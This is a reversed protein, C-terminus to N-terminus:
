RPPQKMYLEFLSWLFTFLPDAVGLVHYVGLMAEQDIRSPMCFLGWLLAFLSRAVGLVWYMMLM